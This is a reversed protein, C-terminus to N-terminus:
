PDAYRPLSLTMCATVHRFCAVPLRLNRPNSFQNMNTQYVSIQDSASNSNVPRNGGLIYISKDRVFSSAALMSCRASIQEQYVITWQDAAINYCQIASVSELDGGAHKRGGITFLKEDIAEMCFHMCSELMHAKVLWINAKTDYAMLKRSCHENETCGGALYVVGNSSCSAPHICKIPAPQSEEWQNDAIAYRYVLDTACNGNLAFKTEKKVRMGCMAYIYAGCATATYGIVPHGPMAKLDMWKECSPDFRLAVPSFYQNDLGFLFLFNGVQVGSLSEYVFATPVELKVNRRRPNDFASLWVTTTTNQVHHGQSRVGSEVILM